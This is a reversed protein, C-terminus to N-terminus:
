QCVIYHSFSIDPNSTENLNKDIALVNPGVWHCREIRKVSTLIAAIPHKRIWYKSTSGVISNCGISPNQKSQQTPLPDCDDEETPIGYNDRSGFM